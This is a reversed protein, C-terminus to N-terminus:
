PLMDQLRTAPEVQLRIADLGHLGQADLLTKREVAGIYALFDGGEM